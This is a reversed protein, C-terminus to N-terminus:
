EGILPLISSNNVKVIHSDYTSTSDTAKIEVFGSNSSTSSPLSYNYSGSSSLNSVIPVCQQPSYGTNTYNTSCASLAVNGTGAIWSIDYQNGGTWVVQDLPQILTIPQTQVQPQITFTNSKVLVNPSQSTIGIQYNNTGSQTFAQAPNSAMWQFSGPSASIPTMTLNGFDKGGSLLAINVNNVNCSSWKIIIKQNVTFAEGGNPYLVTISPTTTPLCDTKPKSIDANSGIVTPAPNNSVPNNQVPTNTNTVSNQNVQPSNNVSTNTNQSSPTSGKTILYIVSGGVVFVALMILAIAVMTFGKNNKM